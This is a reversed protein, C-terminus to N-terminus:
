KTKIKFAKAKVTITIKCGLFMQQKTSEFSVPLIFDADAVSKLADYMANNVGRKQPISVLPAVQLTAVGITNKRGNLPIVGLLYAQTSTGTAEGMYELNNMDLNVQVNMNATPIGKKTITCSTFVVTVFLILLINIKKM